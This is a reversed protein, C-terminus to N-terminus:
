NACDARDRAPAARQQDIEVLPHFAAYRCWRAAHWAASIGGQDRGVAGAKGRHGADSDHALDVGHDADPIPDMGLRLAALLVHRQDGLDAGVAVLDGTHPERVDGHRASGM